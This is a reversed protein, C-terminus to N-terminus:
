GPKEGSWLYRKLYAENREQQALRAALRAGLTAAALLLGLAGAAVWPATSSVPASESLAGPLPGGRGRLYLAQEGARPLRHGALRDAERRAERDIGPSTWGQIHKELGLSPDPQFRGGTVAVRQVAPGAALPPGLAGRAAGVPERVRLEVQRVPHPWRVGALRGEADLVATGAPHVSLLEAEIPGALTLERDGNALRYTSHWDMAEGSRQARHAALEAEAHAPSVALWALLGAIV